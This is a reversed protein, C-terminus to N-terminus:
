LTYILWFKASWCIVVYIVMSGWGPISNRRQLKFSTKRTRIGRILKEAAAEFIASPLYLGYPLFHHQFVKLYANALEIIALYISGIM